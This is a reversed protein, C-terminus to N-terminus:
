KLAFTTLIWHAYFDPKLGGILSLLVAALILSRVSFIQDRLVSWRTALGWDSDGSMFLYMLIKLYYAVGVISGLAALIAVAFYSQEVLQQFIWFKIMFGALPPIGALGLVLIALAIGYLPKALGLGKLDELMFVKSRDELLAVIAFVGLSMGSYIALYSFLAFGIGRSPDALLLGLGLFGANSVSSFALLKKLSKQQLAAINGFIISAVCLSTWFPIWVESVAGFCSWFIRLSIGVAALKVMTALYATVATPAGEYVDPTYIHFPVLALKFALGAMTFLVAMLVLPKDGAAIVRSIEDFRTFGTSGYIFAIGYLLVVTSFGGIFLYKLASESSRIETRFFGCLCYTGIALTEVGLFFCTLDNASFAVVAGFGSLILCVLFESYQEYHVRFFNDQSFMGPSSIFLCGLAIFLALVNLFQTLSDFIVAGFFLAQVPALDFCWLSYILNAGLGLISILFSLRSNQFVIQAIVVALAVLPWAWISVSLQLDSILTAMM